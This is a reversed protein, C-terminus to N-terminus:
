SKHTTPTAHDIEKLKCELLVGLLKYEFGISYILFEAMESMKKDLDWLKRGKGQTVEPRYRQSGTLSKM